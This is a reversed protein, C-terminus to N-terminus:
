REITPSSQFSKNSRANLQFFQFLSKQQCGIETLIRHWKLPPWAQLDFGYGNRFVGGQRVTRSPHRFRNPTGVSAGILVIVSPVMIVVVSMVMAHIGLM